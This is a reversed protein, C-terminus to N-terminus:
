SYGAVQTHSSNHLKLSSSLELDQYHGSFGPSIAHCRRMRHHKKDWFGAIASFVPFHQWLNISLTSLPPQSATSHGKVWTAGQRLVATDARALAVVPKM